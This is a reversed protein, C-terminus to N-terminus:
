IIISIQTLRLTHIMRTTAMHSQIMEENLKQPSHIVNSYPISLDRRLVFYIFLFTYGAEARACVKRWHMSVSFFVLKEIRESDCLWLLLCYHLLLFNVIIIM